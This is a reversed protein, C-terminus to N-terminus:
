ETRPSMRPDSRRAQPPVPEPPSLVDMGKCPSVVGGDTLAVVGTLLAVLTEIEEDRVAVKLSGTLEAVKVAAVAVSLGGVAPFMVTVPVVAINVGDVSSGLVVYVAVSVVPMLSRAPLANAVSKKQDKVVPVAGSMVAGVTLAVVGLLLAVLTEIEEDRVAVKLSGTLEAVTVAAVKVSLFLAFMGTVPSIVVLPVVTMNANGGPVGKVLLVRYVAVSVLPM